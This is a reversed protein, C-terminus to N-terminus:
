WRECLCCTRSFPGRWVTRASLVHGVTRASHDAGLPRRWSIVVLIHVDRCNRLICPRGFPGRRVTRAALDMGLPARRVTRALHDVGRCTLVTYMVVTRALLVNQWVTRALRDAGFPCHGVTRASHDAGLPRRWSIDVLIHVDRCNCLSYPARVVERFLCYFLSAINACVCLKTYLAPFLSSVAHLRLVLRGLVAPNAWTSMRFLFLVGIM